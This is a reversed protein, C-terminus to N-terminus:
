LATTATIINYVMYGTCLHGMTFCLFRCPQPLACLHAVSHLGRSIVFTRFVLRATELDPGTGIYIMAIILFMPINELDNLHNQRARTVSSSPERKHKEVQKDNIGFMRNDEQSSFEGNWMRCVGVVVAKLCYLASVAGAHFAYTQFLPDSLTFTVM